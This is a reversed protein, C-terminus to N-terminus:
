NPDVINPLTYWRPVRRRTSDADAPEAVPGGCGATTEQLQNIRCCIDTRGASIRGYNIGGVAACNVRLGLKMQKVKLPKM